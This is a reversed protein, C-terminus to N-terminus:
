CCTSPSPCARRAPATPSRSARKVVALYAPHDVGISFTHVWRLGRLRPLDRVLTMISGDVFSDVSIYAVEADSPDGSWSGDAGLRVIEAGPVAARLPGGFQEAVTASVILKVSVRASINVM